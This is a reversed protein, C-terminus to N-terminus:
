PKERRTGLQNLTLVLDAVPERLETLGPLPPLPIFVVAWSLADITM